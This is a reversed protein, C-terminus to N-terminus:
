IQKMAHQLVTFKNQINKPLKDRFGSSKERIYPTDLKRELSPTLSCKKMEKESARQQHKRDHDYKKVKLKQKACLNAQSKQKRCKQLWKKEEIRKLIKNARYRKARNKKFLLFYIKNCCIFIKGQVKMNKKQSKMEAKYSIVKKGDKDRIFRFAM